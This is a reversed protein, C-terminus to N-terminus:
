EEKIALKLYRTRRSSTIEFLDIEADFMVDNIKWIKDLRNKFTNLTSATVVNKPLNNWQDAIREKFYFKRVDKRFKGKVISFQHATSARDIEKDTRLKLINQDDTIGHTLKYAEIMDGRYRRYQLTPLNIKKLREKYPLDKLSPLLKTARRQVNEILIIMKKTHPNWVPAAYELHPRVIAVYLQKFMIEDLFIFSRRIMGLLGNAKKVIIYIHDEFQLKNDIHVGLDKEVEVTKLKRLDVNYFGEDQNNPSRQSTIRMRVCKEPHLRLLSYCTWDYIMDLKNQLMEMQEDSTIEEFIKLDDAYLYINDDNCKEILLNIYIIFLLPGLVSGQPVGSRVSHKASKVGNVCVMMRRDSLFDKIWNLIVDNVGYYSLVELLNKHPVTDFAKQFDCFIVDIANGDDIIKTWKDLVTLLQLVTSRGTVFGFQNPSLLNKEKIYEMLGDRIISEMIRSVISTLSIPRYNSVDNKSGKNKFVPTVSALKWATPIKGLKISQNYILFLPKVISSSAEKLIRAHVLDPGPSKNVNLENLKKRVQEETIQINFSDNASRKEDKLDWTWGQEKIHVSAFHKVLLEAKELDTEAVKDPARETYLDPVSEKVKTKKNVHKWFLKSNTKVYKAITQEKQKEAKRTQYRVQNRCKCYEHYVTADKSEQYRKWLRTKKKLKSRLSQHFRQSSRVKDDNIMKTPVCLQEAMKYKNLFAEWMCDIDGKCTELLVEWDLNLIDKLQEYDGKEYDLIEKNLKREKQTRYTVAVVSHDSKGLPSKIEVKEVNNENTTLFLDVLSPKDTGRGRTPTLVHQSLLSDKCAEIFDMEKECSSSVTNWNIKPHNFDGVVVIHQYKLSSTATIFENVYKDELSSCNPSRYMILFLMKQKNALNIEIGMVENPLTGKSIRSLNIISYTLSKKIYAAIGRTTNDNDLNNYKFVYGDIQYESKNLIRQFNKPKVENISIIDPPSEQKIKEKLEM